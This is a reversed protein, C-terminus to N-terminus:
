EGFFADLGDAIGKVIKDRYSDKALLEDEDKNTMYGMEVITVPVTCWNIGSMTDTEWVGKDASGTMQVIGDLVCDSLRRSVEYLSGNYPNKGTQCITMTGHVSKDDSGNAHIRIFADADAENAIGARESNSINVDNSERVMIVDYGRNTLEEQLKLSVELNLKYEPIGTSVGKTGSSVKPKMDSAGPGIPENDNNGESQHGADIVILRNGGSNGAGDGSASSDQSADEDDSGADNHSDTDEEADADSASGNATDAGTGGSGNATDAGTEGSDNTTDADTGGSDTNTETGVDAGTGAEDANETNGEGVTVDQAEEGETVLYTAIYCITDKYIVRTWEAHYGTRKLQTKEYLTTIKASATTPRERLNVGEKTIVYDDRDEFVYEIELEEWADSGTGTEENDGAQNTDESQNNGSDTNDPQLGDTADVDDSTGEDSADPYDVQLQEDGQGDGEAEDSEGTLSGGDTVTTSGGAKDDKAGLRPLIILLVAATVALIGIIIFRIKYSNFKGKM